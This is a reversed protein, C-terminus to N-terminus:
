PVGRVSESKASDSQNPLGSVLPMEARAERRPLLRNLLWAAFMTALWANVGVWLPDVDSLTVTYGWAAGLVMGGIVAAARWKARFLVLTVCGLLPGHFSGLIRIQIQMITGLRDVYGAGLTAGLGIVISSLRAFRLLERPSRKRGMRVLFDNTFSASLANIGSTMASMTAALIAAMLIGSVGKPLERAVFYPMIKDAATPLGADVRYSYWMKLLIGISCLLLVTVASGYVNIRFSRQAAPASGTALFRQIAMQDAMYNGLNGTSWGILMAWVTFPETLDFSFSPAPIAGKGQLEVLAQGVPVPLNLCIFAAVFLIGGIMVITQVADTVIVGRLGGITAYVTCSVGIAINVPLTWARDLGLMTLIVVSPAYILAAMWGIRLGVFGISAATRVGPGFHAEIFDYSSGIPGRFLRPIFWVHLVLWAICMGPIVLFYKWGHTYCVSPVALLSLGSIPAISIGVLIIGIRGSLGRGATFYDDIDNQRGRAAIGLAVTGGFYLAIIIYDALGIM